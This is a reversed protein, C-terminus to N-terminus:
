VKYRSQFDTDLELLKMVGKKTPEDNDAQVYLVYAGFRDLKPMFDPYRTGCYTYYLKDLLNSPDKDRKEDGTPLDLHWLRVTNDRNYIEAIFVVACQLKENLIDVVILAKDGRSSMSIASIRIAEANVGPASTRVFEQLKDRSVLVERGKGFEEEMNAAEFSEVSKLWDAQSKIQYRVLDGSEDGVVILNSDDNLLCATAHMDPLRVSGVVTKTPTNMVVTHAVVYEALKRTFDEFAFWFTRSQDNGGYGRYVLNRSCLEKAEEAGGKFEKALVEQLSAVASDRRIDEDLQIVNAEIGFSSVYNLYFREGLDNIYQFLSSRDYDGVHYINQWKIESVNTKSLVSGGISAGLGGSAIRAGYFQLDDSRNVSSVFRTSRLYGISFCGEGRSVKTNWLLTKKAVPSKGMMELRFVKSPKKSVSKTVGEGGKVVKELEGLQQSLVSLAEAFEMAVLSPTIFFVACCRLMRVRNM